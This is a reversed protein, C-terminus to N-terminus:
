PVCNGSVDVFEVGMRDGQNKYAPCTYVIFDTRYKEQKEGTMTFHLFLLSKSFIHTGLIFM